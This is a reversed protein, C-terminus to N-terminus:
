VPTPTNRQTHLYKAHPQGVVRGINQLTHQAAAAPEWVVPNRTPDYDVIVKHDTLLAEEESPVQLPELHVVVNLKSDGHMDDAVILDDLSTDLPRLGARIKSEMYEPQAAIPTEYDTLQNFKMANLVTKAKEQSILDIEDYPLTKARISADYLLSQVHSEELLGSHLMECGGVLTAATM